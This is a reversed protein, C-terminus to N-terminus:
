KPEGGVLSWHEQALLSDAAKRDPVTVVGEADLDVDVGHVQIKKGFLHKLANSARLRISGNHRGVSDESVM